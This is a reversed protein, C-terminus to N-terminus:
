RLSRAGDGVNGLLLDRGHPALVVGGITGQPAARSPRAGLRGVTGSSGATLSSRAADRLTAGQRPYRTASAKTVAQENRVLRRLSRKRPLAHRSEAGPATTSRQARDAAPRAPGSRPVPHPRRCSPDRGAEPLPHRVGKTVAQENRVLRRLSRETAVHAAIRGRGRDNLAAGPRSRAKRTWIAARPAPLHTQSPPTQPRDPSV